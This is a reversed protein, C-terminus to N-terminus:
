MGKLAEARALTEPLALATTLIADALALAALAILIAAGLRRATRALAARRDARITAANLRTFPSTMM